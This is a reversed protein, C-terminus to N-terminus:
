FTILQPKCKTKKEFQNTKVLQLLINQLTMRVLARLANILSDM